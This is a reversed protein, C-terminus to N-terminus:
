SFARSYGDDWLVQISKNETLTVRIARPMERLKEYSTNFLMQPLEEVATPYFLRPELTLNILSLARQYIEKVIHDCFFSEPNSSAFNSRAACGNNIHARQSDLWKEHIYLINKEKAFAINTKKDNSRM